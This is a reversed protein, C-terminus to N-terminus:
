ALSLVLILNREPVGEVIGRLPKWIYKVAGKNAM